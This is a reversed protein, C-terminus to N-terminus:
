YILKLIVPGMIVLFVAPMICLILPFIIKQSAQGALREAEQFRQTLMQDSQSRLIDRMPVGLRASQVLISVFTNLESVDCRQALNRLADERLAGLQVEKLMRSLEQMLPSPRSKQIMRAMAVLFDMGGEVSLALLDVTPPLSRRIAKARQDVQQKLWLDPLFLGALALLVVAWWSPQGKTLLSFGLGLVPFIIGMLMKFAIFEDENIQGFLDAAIIKRKKRGRWLPTKVGAALPVLFLYLPRFMQIFPERAEEREDRAGLLRRAAQENYFVLSARALLFVTAFVLAFICILLMDLM